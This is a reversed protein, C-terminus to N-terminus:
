TLVVRVGEAASRRAADMITIVARADALSVPPAVGDLVAAAVARYFCEYAGPLVPMSRVSAGDSLEVSVEPAIGWGAGGPRLGQTLQSEQPDMGRQVLSALTGHAVFRPGPKPVLLSAHLLVRRRGYNLQLHFYDDVVVGDRQATVDAVVSDPVGFLCLAQDILHPGLDYLVGAGPVAQERWGRKPSPRHRDFHLEAFFVEGLAREVLLERVTLFNGDWRRNQFVTLLRNRQLALEILADAERVNLTFPKDVVVHKGALLAARALPAHTENPSAVVVLDVDDSRVLQQADTMSRTAAFEAPLSRSTAVAVLRLRPEAAILPAHFVAGAVGFGVLGVKLVAM